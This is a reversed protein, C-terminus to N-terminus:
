EHHHSRDGSENEEASSSCNDIVPTSMTTAGIARAVPINKGASKSRAAILGSATKANSATPAPSPATAAVNMGIAQPISVNKTTAPITNRTVTM